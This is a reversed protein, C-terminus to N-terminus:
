RAVTDVKLEDLKPKKKDLPEPTKRKEKKGKGKKTGKVPSDDPKIDSCLNAYLTSPPPTPNPPLSHPPLTSSVHIGCSLQWFQSNSCEALVANLQVSSFYVPGVQQFLHVEYRM